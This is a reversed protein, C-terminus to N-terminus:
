VSVALQHSSDAHVSRLPSRVATVQSLRHSRPANDNRSITLSDLRASNMSYGYRPEDVSIATQTTQRIPKGDFSM